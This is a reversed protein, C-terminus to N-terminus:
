EGKERPYRKWLESNVFTEVNRTLRTVDLLEDPGLERSCRM